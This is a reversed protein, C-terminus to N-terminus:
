SPQNVALAAEGESPADRSLRKRIAVGASTAVYKGFKLKLHPQDSFPPLDVHFDLFHLDPAIVFPQVDHGLDSLRQVLSEMDCRRYLVTPGSEITDDNSSFNFETTHVAVGGPKATQEVSEIV